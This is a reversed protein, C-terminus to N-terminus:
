RPSRCVINADTQVEEEHDQRTDDSLCFSPSPQALRRLVETLGFSRLSALATEQALREIIWQRGLTGPQQGLRAATLHFADKIEPKVRFNLIPDPLSM